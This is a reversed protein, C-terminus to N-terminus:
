NLPLPPMNTTTSLPLSVVELGAVDSLLGDAFQQRLDQYKEKALNLVFSHKKDRCMVYHCAAIFDEVVTIKDDPTVVLVQLHLQQCLKMLYRSKDPDLKSFAEDVVLFRFSRGGGIGGQQQRNLGFQYALAAGLVTYTLQAAEGGSLSGSGDYLKGPVPQEDAQFFEQAQFVSWERVDTVQQRWEPEQRLRELLTQVREFAQQQAAPDQQIGRRDPVAQVLDHQFDRVRQNPTPRQMLKIYTPAPQHNFTIGRLSSNLEAVYQKIEREQKQLAERFAVIGDATEERLYKEFKQRQQPLEQQTIRQHVQLYDDLADLDANGSPVDASWDPFRRSVELKPNAFSNMIRRVAAGAQEKTQKTQEQDADVKAIVSARLREVASVSNSPAELAPLYTAAAEIVLATPSNSKQLETQCEDIRARLKDLEEELAGSRKLDRKQELELFNSRAVLVDLQTQLSRLQETGPSNLLDHRDQERRAISEQTTPVDLKAFDDFKCLDYLRDRTAQNAQRKSLYRQHVQQVTDYENTADLLLEQYRRLKAGSEWGLVYEAANRHGSRDDKRHESRNRVLGERTLAQDLRQLEAQNEACVHPFRTRLQQDLWDRHPSDKRVILKTAVTRAAPAAQRSGTLVLPEAAVRQYVLLANLKTTNVYATLDAYHAEPVILQLAFRHLLKELAPEWDTADERVRLLEGVFPLEDAPIYLHQCLKNRLELERQPINTPPQQELRKVEHSLEAHREALQQVRAAQRGLEGTDTLTENAERLQDGVLERQLEFASADTPCSSLRLTGALTNYANQQTQQEVLRTQLKELEGNLWELQHSADDQKVAQELEKERQRNNKLEGTQKELQFNLTALKDAQSDYTEELATQERQTLLYSVAKRVEGLERLRAEAQRLRVADAPLPDLLRLQETAKELAQHSELLQQYQVQLKKFDEEATGPELMHERIFQDLKGLVKMSVAKGFLTLAKTRMGFAGLLADRYDKFADFLIPRPGGYERKVRRKWEGAGDLAGLEAIGLAHPIALFDVNLGGQPRFRRVQALTFAQGGREDRFCALLVSHCGPQRLADARAELHGDQASRGYHGLVYTRESRDQRTETGSSQNYFRGPPTLLTLLGDVLTTKGAGNAGTLLTTQGHAEVRHFGDFTGWNLVEFLHLRFGAPLSFNTFLTDM